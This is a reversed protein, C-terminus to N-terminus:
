PSALWQLHMAIANHLPLPASRFTCQLPVARCPANSAHRPLALPHRTATTLCGSHTSLDWAGPSAPRGSLRRSMTRCWSQACLESPVLGLAAVLYVWSKRAHALLRSVALADRRLSRRRISWGKGPRRTSPLAPEVPQRARDAVQQLRERRDGFLLFGTEAGKAVGPGVGHRRV